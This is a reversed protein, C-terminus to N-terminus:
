KTLERKMAQMEQLKQEAATVRKLQETYDENKHKFFNVVQNLDKVATELRIKQVGDTIPQNSKLGCRMTLRVMAMVFRARRYDARLKEEKM